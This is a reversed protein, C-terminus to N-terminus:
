DQPFRLSALAVEGEDLNASDQKLLVITTITAADDRHLVLVVARDYGTAFSPRPVTIAIAGWEAGYYMNAEDGPILRRDSSTELTGIHSTVAMFWTSPDGQVCDTAEPPCPAEPRIPDVRYRVEVNGSPSLVAWMYPVDPNDVVAIPRFGVPQAYVLGAETVADTFAQAKARSAPARPRAAPPASQQSSACAALSGALWIM